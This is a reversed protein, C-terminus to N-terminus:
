IFTNYRLTKVDPCIAQLEPYGMLKHLSVSAPDASADGDLGDRANMKMYYKAGMLITEEEPFHDKKM